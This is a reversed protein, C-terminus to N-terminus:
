NLFVGDPREEPQYRQATALTWRTRKLLDEIWDARRELCPQALMAYREEVNDCTSAIVLDILAATSLEESLHNRLYAISALQRLHEDGLLSVLRKRTDGLDIEMPAQVETLRLIAQRYPTDLEIERVIEARCIGQLLLNYRGDPLRQHQAIYGVCVHPRLAPSGEYDQRWDEGEFVAMAILKQGRLADATMRRYRPEFMHLPQTVHPLIVCSPLPFLPVPLNFDITLSEPMVTHYASVVVARM